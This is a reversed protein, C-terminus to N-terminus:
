LNYELYNEGLEILQEELEDMKEELVEDPEFLRISKFIYQMMLYLRVYISSYFTFPWMKTLIDQAHVYSSASQYDEYVDEEKIYKCLAGYGTGNNGMLEKLWINNNKQAEKSTYFKFKEEFDINREECYKRLYEMQTESVETNDDRRLKRIVNCLWWENILQQSQEKKMISVFIYCEILTRTMAATSLLNGHIFSNFLEMMLEKMHNKWMKLCGDKDYEYEEYKWLTEENYNKLFSSVEKMYQYVDEESVFETNSYNEIYLEELKEDRENGILLMEPVNNNQNHPNSYTGLPFHIEKVFQLLVNAAFERQLEEMDADYGGAANRHGDIDVYMVRDKNPNQEQAVRILDFLDKAAKEFNERRYVRHYIAIKKDKM